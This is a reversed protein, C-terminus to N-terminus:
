LHKIKPENFFQKMDAWKVKSKKMFERAQYTPEGHKDKINMCEYMMQLALDLLKWHSLTYDHGRDAQSRKKDMERKCIIGKIGKSIRNLSIFDMGQAIWGNERKPGKM